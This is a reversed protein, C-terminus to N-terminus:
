RYGSSRGALGDGAQPPPRGARRGAPAGVHQRRGLEIQLEANSVVMRGRTPLETSTPDFVPIALVDNHRALRTVIRTTEEDAGDFDSVIAVLYDHGAVRAVGELVRNLMGPDPRAPSDASLARNREVLAHLIRLVTRRSRHPQIEISDTDDFVVAGVGTAPM